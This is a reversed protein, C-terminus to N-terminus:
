KPKYYQPWRRLVLEGSAAYAYCSDIKAPKESADTADVGHLNLTGVSQIATTALPMLLEMLHTCSRSGGLKRRVTSGWGPKISTGILERLADGGYSCLSYPSAETFTYVDRVVMEMDFVLRVGMNHIPEGAAVTRGGSKPVFEVPKTDIVRGEVEFLGDSRRYGRMEIRRLHLEERSVEQSKETSAELSCNM